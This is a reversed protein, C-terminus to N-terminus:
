IAILLVYITYAGLGVFSWFLFEQAWVYRHLMHSNPLTKRSFVIAEHLKWVGLLVVFVAILFFPWMFRLYILSIVFLLVLGGMLNFIATMFRGFVTNPIVISQSSAPPIITNATDVSRMRRSDYARRTFENSLVRYAENIAKMDEADGGRDPHHQRALRKYLRELEDQSVDESAGLVDYYNKEKM